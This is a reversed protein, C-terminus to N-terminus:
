VYYLVHLNSLFLIRGIRLFRGRIRDLVMRVTHLVQLVMERCDHCVTLPTGLLSERRSTSRGVDGRSLARRLEGWRSV